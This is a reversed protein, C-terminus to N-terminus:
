MIPIHSRDHNSTLRIDTIVRGGRGRRREEKGGRRGGERRRGKMEGVGKRGGGKREKGEGGVWAPTPTGVPIM